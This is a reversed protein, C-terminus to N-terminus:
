LHGGGGPTAALRRNNPGNNPFSFRRETSKKVVNALLNAMNMEINVKTLYALTHAQIYVADDPLSM